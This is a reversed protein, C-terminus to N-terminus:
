NIVWVPGKALSLGPARAVGGRSPGGGRVSRLSPGELQHDFHYDFNRPPSPAKEGVSRLRRGRALGLLLIGTKCRAILRRGRGLGYRRGQVPGGLSQNSFHQTFLPVEGM